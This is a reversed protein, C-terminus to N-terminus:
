KLFCKLLRKMFMRGCTRSRKEKLWPEVNILHSDFAESLSLANWAAQEDDPAMILWPEQGEITVWYPYCDEM